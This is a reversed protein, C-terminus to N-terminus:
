RVPYSKSERFIHRDPNPSSDSLKQSVSLAVSVNLGAFGPSLRISGHIALCFFSCARRDLLYREFSEVLYQFRWKFKHGCKSRTKSIYEETIGVVFSGYKVAQHKLM